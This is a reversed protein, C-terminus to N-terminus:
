SPASAKEKEVCLKLIQYSGGAAEASKACYALTAAPATMAMAEKRAAAEQQKCSAAIESTGAGAAFRACYGDSDLAPFEPASSAADGSPAHGGCGAALLAAMVFIFRAM